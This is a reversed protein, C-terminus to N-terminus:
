QAPLRHRPAACFRGMPYGLFPPNVGRFLYTLSPDTSAPFRGKASSPFGSGAIALGNYIDGSGPVIRGANAGTPIVTVAKSPDYLSPDFVAM